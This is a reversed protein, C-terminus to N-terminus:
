GGCVDEREEAAVGQREDEFLRRESADLIL